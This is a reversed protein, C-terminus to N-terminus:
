TTSCPKRTHSNSITLSNTRAKAMGNAKFQQSRMGDLDREIDPLVVFDLIRGPPTTNACLLSFVDVVLTEFLSTRLDGRAKIVSEVPFTLAPFIYVRVEGDYEDYLSSIFSGADEVEDDDENRGAATNAITYGGYGLRVEVKGEIMSLSETLRAALFRYQRKKEVVKSICELAESRSSFVCQRIYYEAEEAEDVEMVLADVAEIGHEEPVFALPNLALGALSGLLQEDRPILRIEKPRMDPRLAARRVAQFFQTLKPLRDEPGALSMLATGAVHAARVREREEQERQRRPKPM